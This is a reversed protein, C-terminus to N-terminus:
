WPPSFLSQLFWSINANGSWSAGFMLAPCPFLLEFASFVSPCLNKKNLTNLNWMKTARWLYFSHGSNDVLVSIWADKLSSIRSNHLFLALAAVTAYCILKLDNGKVPELQHQGVWNLIGPDTLWKIIRSVQNTRNTCLFSCKHNCSSIWPFCLLRKTLHVTGDWM